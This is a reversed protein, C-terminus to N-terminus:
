ASAGTMARVADFDDRVRVRGVVRGDDVHLVRDCACAILELDHTAVLITRGEDALRRLLRGVRRMGDVDIGSTPEDFVIIRKGAAVCAAVALRQKQGGSLTAPHMGAVDDLALARLIADTDVTRARRRPLGFTVDAAASAAFLQYDVDQFVMASARMRSRRSARRGDIRVVGSTRREFGCLARCATTKGAGNGGVLATVEGARVDVDVGHLVPGSGYGVSLGRASLAADNGSSGSGGGDPLIADPHAPHPGVAPAVDDLNRARLGMSDLERPDLAAFEDASMVRTIRGSDLHIYTDALGSLWTLRHEAM